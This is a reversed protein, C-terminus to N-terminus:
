KVTIRLTGSDLDPILQFSAISTEPVPELWVTQWIGSVATYWIGKPHLVQKGHQQLGSDSPDTVAVILENEGPKLFHTLDFTFPLYGGVHSGVAVGNVWVECAHDVAGFHLLVRRGRWTEPIPFTRHYWLREDPQLSRQVGSLASEAAFPVLIKGDYKRPESETQPRIAYDWEGNLNLWDPRVMQPRPYEPLPIPQDPQWPTRIFNGAPM